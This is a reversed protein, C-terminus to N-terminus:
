IVLSNSIFKLCYNEVASVCFFVILRAFCKAVDIVFHMEVFSAFSIEVMSAFYMVVFSAHCM